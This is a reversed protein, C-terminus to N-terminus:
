LEAEGYVRGIEYRGAEWERSLITANPRVFHWVFIQAADTPPDCKFCMVKGEPVSKAVIYPLEAEDKPSITSSGQVDRDPAKNQPRPRKM